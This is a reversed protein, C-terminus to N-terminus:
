GAREVPICRNTSVDVNCRKWIASKDSWDIQNCSKSIAGFDGGHSPDYRPVFILRPKVWIGASPPDGPRENQLFLQYANQSIKAQRAPPVLCGSTECIWDGTLDCESSLYTQVVAGVRQNFWEQVTKPFLQALGAQIAVLAGVIGSLLVLVAHIKKM